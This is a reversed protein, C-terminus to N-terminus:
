VPLAVAPAVYAQSKPAPALGAVADVTPGCETFQPVAPEDVTASVTLAAPQLEVVLLTTGTVALGVAAKEITEDM